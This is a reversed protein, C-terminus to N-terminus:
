TRKYLASFPFRWIVAAQIIGRTVSRHLAVLGCALFSGIMPLIRRLDSSMSGSGEGVILVGRRMAYQNFAPSIMTFIVSAAISTFLRATGRLAHVAIEVSHSILPLLFIVSLTAAWEPEVGRFLQTLAGYFGATIGRYAFEALMAGTAARWGAALNCLFFIIRTDALQLHGIELELAM